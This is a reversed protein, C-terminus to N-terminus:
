GRWWLWGAWRRSGIFTPASAYEPTVNLVYAPMTIQTGYSINDSGNWGGVAMGVPINTM